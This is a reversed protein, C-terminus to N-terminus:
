KTFHTMENTSVTCNPMPKSRLGMSSYCLSQVGYNDVKFMTKVLLLSSLIWKYKVYIKCKFNYFDEFDLLVGLINSNISFVYHNKGWETMFDQFWTYPFPRLQQVSNRGMLNSTISLLSLITYSLGCGWQTDMCLTSAFTCLVYYFGM